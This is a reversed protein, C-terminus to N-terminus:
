GHFRQRPYLPQGRAFSPASCAGGGGATGVTANVASEWKQGATNFALVAFRHSGAALSISTNLVASAVAYKKVGDVWLQTRLSPGPLPRTRRWRCRRTSRPVAPPSVFTSGPRPPRAAPDEEGLLHLDCQERREPHVRHASAIAKVTTNTSITIPGYLADLVSNPDIREAHLPHGCVRDHQFADREPELLLNRWEPIDAAGGCNPEGNLLGM